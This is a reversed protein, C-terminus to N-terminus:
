LIASVIITPRKMPASARAATPDDYVNITKRVDMRIPRAIPLPVMKERRNPAPSESPSFFLMVADNMRM